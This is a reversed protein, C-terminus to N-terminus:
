TTLMAQSRVRLNRALSPRRLDLYRYKLRLAENTDIQEEIPFPPTEARSFIELVRARVEIEGTPLRPNVNEGRSIVEGVVGICFESRLDGALAHARDSVQPDFVVQTIGGSDRLDVFVCGGHDRRVDVWGTLVVEQGIHAARLQGCGHTKKHQSLFSTMQPLRGYCTQDGAVKRYVQSWATCMVM